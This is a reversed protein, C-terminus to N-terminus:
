TRTRVRITDGGRDTAAVYAVFQKGTVPNVRLTASWIPGTSIVERTRNGGATIRYVTLGVDGASPDHGGEGTV